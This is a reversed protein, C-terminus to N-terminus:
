KKVKMAKLDKIAKTTKLGRMPKLNRMAKMAEMARMARKPHFFRHNWFPHSDNEFNYKSINKNWPEHAKMAKMPKMAKMSKMSKMAKLDKLCDPGEPEEPERLYAWTRPIDMEEPTRLRFHVGEKYVVKMTRMAKMSKLDRLGDHDKTARLRRAFQAKM